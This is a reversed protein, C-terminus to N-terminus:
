QTPESDNAGDKNLEGGPPACREPTAYSCTACLEGPNHAVKPACSTPINAKYVAKRGNGGAVTRVLWGADVARQLHRDLTREPLGTAEALQYRWRRLDGDPTM